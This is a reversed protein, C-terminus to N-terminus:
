QLDSEFKGCEICQYFWLRARRESERVQSASERVEDLLRKRKGPRSVNNM